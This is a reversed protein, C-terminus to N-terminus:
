RQGVRRKVQTCRWQEGYFENCRRRAHEADLGYFMTWYAWEPESEHEVYVDWPVEVADLLSGQATM